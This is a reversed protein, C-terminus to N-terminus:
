NFTVIDLWIEIRGAGSIYLSSSCHLAYSIFFRLTPNLVKAYNIDDCKIFDIEAYQPYDYSMYTIM